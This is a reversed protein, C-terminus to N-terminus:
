KRAYLKGSNVLEEFDKRTLVKPSAAGETWDIYRLNDNIIDSRFPSNFLITQFFFEDPGWTYKFFRAVQPNKYIYSLVYRVHDACLTMWQARGTLIMNMPTMRIPTVQNILRELKHKGVCNYNM